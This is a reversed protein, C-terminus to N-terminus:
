PVPRAAREYEGVLALQVANLATNIRRVLALNADSRVPAIEPLDLAVEVLTDRFFLLAQVAEALGLGQELSQRAHERGIARAEDLLEPVAHGSLYQLLVTMLRRGLQRKLERGPPNHKALWVAEPLRDLRARAEAVAADSWLQELGVVARLRRRNVAFQDLDARSFRRHGGPTLLVALEGADAWRRLTTPHVGLHAAAARLSL